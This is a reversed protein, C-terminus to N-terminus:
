SITCEYSLQIRDIGIGNIIARYLTDSVQSIDVKSCRTEIATQGYSQIIFAIDRMNITSDPVGATPGTIDAQSQRNILRKYSDATKGNKGIAISMDRMDVKGDQNIDSKCIDDSECGPSLMLNHTKYMNATILNIDDNNMQCDRTPDKFGRGDIVFYCEEVPLNWCGNTSNCNFSRVAANVDNYDVKGDKNLDSKEMNTTTYVYSCYNVFGHCTRAPLYFESNWNEFGMNEYGQLGITVDRFIMIGTINKAANVKYVFASILVIASILIILIEKNGIKM